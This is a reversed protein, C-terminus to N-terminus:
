LHPIHSVLMLVQTLFGMDLSLVAVSRYGWHQYAFVSQNWLRGLCGICHDEPEALYDTELFLFLQPLYCVGAGLNQRDM